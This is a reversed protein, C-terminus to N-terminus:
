ALEGVGLGTTLLLEGGEIFQTPDALESAHVWTIENRLGDSGAVVALELGPIDVLNQVSLM